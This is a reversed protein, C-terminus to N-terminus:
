QNLVMLWYGTVSPAASSCGVARLIIYITVAAVKM